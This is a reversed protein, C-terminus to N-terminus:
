PAATSCLGWRRWGAGCCHGTGACRARTPIASGVPPVTSATQRSSSTLSSGGMRSSPWRGATLSSTSACLGDGSRSRTTGSATSSRASFSTRSPVAISPSSRGPIDRRWAGHSAGSRRAVGRRTSSSPHRSRTRELEGLLGLEDLERVAHPLLNIGVGLPRLENVADFVTARVGIQELSLATASAVSAPASSSATFM